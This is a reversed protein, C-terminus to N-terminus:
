EQVDAHTGQHCTHVSAHTDKLSVPLIMTVDDGIGIKNALNKRMVQSPRTTLSVSLCPQPPSVAAEWSDPSHSTTGLYQTHCTYFLRFSLIFFSHPRTM